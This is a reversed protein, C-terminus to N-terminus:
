RRSPIHLRHLNTAGTSAGSEQPAPPDHNTLLFSGQMMRPHEGSSFESPANILLPTCYGVVYYIGEETKGQALLQFGYLNDAAFDALDALLEDDPPITCM